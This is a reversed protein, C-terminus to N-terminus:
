QAAAAGPPLDSQGRRWAAMGTFERACGSCILQEGYRMVGQSDREVVRRYSTAGCVGCRNQPATPNSHMLQQRYKFEHVCYMTDRM